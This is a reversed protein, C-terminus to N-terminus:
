LFRLGFLILVALNLQVLFDSAALIVDSSSDAYLNLGKSTTLSYTQGAAGEIDLELNGGNGPDAISSIYIPIKNWGYGFKCIEM